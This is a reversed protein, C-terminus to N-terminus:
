LRYWGVPLHPGRHGEQKQSTKQEQWLVRNLFDWSTCQTLAKDSSLGPEDTGRCTARPCPDWAFWWPCKQLGQHVPLTTDLSLVAKAVPTPWPRIPLSRRRPCRLICPHGTSEGPSTWCFELRGPTPTVSLSLLHVLLDSQKSSEKTLTSSRPAKLTGILLIKDHQLPHTSAYLWAVSLGTRM